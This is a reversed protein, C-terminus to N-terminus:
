WSQFPRIVFRHHGFCIMVGGRLKRIAYVKRNLKMHIMMISGGSVDRDPIRVM